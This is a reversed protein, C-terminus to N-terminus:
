CARHVRRLASRLAALHHRAAAPWPGPGQQTASRKFLSRASRLAARAATCAASPGPASQGEGTITQSATQNSSESPHLEATETPDSPPSEESPQGPAAPSVTITRQASAAYGLEEAGSVSVKYEGPETYTHIAAASAAKGGDGFEIKPSYLGETPIEIEVPEGVEAEEPAEVEVTPIGEPDYGAAEVAVERCDEKPGLSEPCAHRGETLWVATADGDAATADGPADLVVAPDYNDTGAESIEVAGEWEGDAPRYATEIVWASGDPLERESVLAANGSQDFALDRPFGNGSETQVAVPEGWEDGSFSFAARVTGYEGVQRGDGSWAVIANGSPDVADEISQVEEGENSANRPAEWSGGVARYATRVYETGADEGRWAVLADGAADLAIQPDGGEEGPASVLTPSEWEGGSARYASEVVYHTGDYHMWVITADGAANMAAQTVYSDSGSVAIPAEWAEGAPRYATQIVEGKKWVAMADGNSDVAVWPEPDPGLPTEGLDVPATWGGGAPREVSQVLLRSGAYREWVVTVDGAGDVAIRPSQADNAGPVIEGSLEPESLDVPAGWPQGAPRYAAEVVTDDGNWRDWVVTANGESDLVVHPVGADEGPESIAVPPLWGAQAAPALAVSGLALAVM